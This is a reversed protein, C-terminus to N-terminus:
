VDVPVVLEMKIQISQAYEDITRMIQLSTQQRMPLMSKLRYITVVNQTDLMGNRILGRRKM